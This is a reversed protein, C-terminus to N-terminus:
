SRYEAPAVSFQGKRVQFYRSFRVKTSTVILFLVSTVSKNDGNKQRSNCKSGRPNNIDSTM